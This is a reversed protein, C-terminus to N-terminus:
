KIKDELLRRFQGENITVKRNNVRNEKVLGNKTFAMVTGRLLIPEDLRMWNEIYNSQVPKSAPTMTCLTIHKHKNVSFCNTEVGVAMADESEGITTATLTVEKGLMNNCREVVEDNFTSCHALTMHDCFVKYADEPVLDILIKRSEEDLFIGYYIVNQPM